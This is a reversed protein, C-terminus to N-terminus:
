RLLDRAASHLNALTGQAWGESISETGAFRPKDILHFKLNSINGVITFWPLAALDNGRLPRIQRYGDAFADWHRTQRVGYLDSARFGPGARDLDYIVPGGPGFFVNDMTVDGHVVGWDLGDATLAEIRRRAEQGLAQVVARDEPQAALEALVLDLPQTLTTALDFCRRPYSATFSDAATHFAATAAGFEAYLEDTFPQRPKTGPSVFVTLAYPRQGEPADAVGALRGDALPVVDPVAMGSRLLHRTLDGEWAVEGPSWFGHRYLKFVYRQGPTVVAYVDNVFSRLLTCGNVDLGYARAIEERVADVTFLSRQTRTVM